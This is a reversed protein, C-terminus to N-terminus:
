PRVEPPQIAAKLTDPLRSWADHELSALVRGGPGAPRWDRSRRYSESRASAEVYAVVRTAVESRTM